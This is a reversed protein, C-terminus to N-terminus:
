LFNLKDSTYVTESSLPPATPLSMGESEFRPAPDTALFDSGCSYVPPDEHQQVASSLPPGSNSAVAPVGSHSSGSPKHAKSVSPVPAPAASYIVPGQQSPASYGGSAAATALAAANRRYIKRNQCRRRVCYCACCSVMLLVAVSIYILLHVPVQAELVTLKVFLVLNQKQDYFGYYGYDAMEVSSIVLADDRPQIRKSNLIEDQWEGDIMLRKVGTATTFNVFHPRFGSPYFFSYEEEEVAESRRNYILIVLNIRSLLKDKSRIHYYGQDPQALNLIQLKGDQLHMRGTNHTSPDSRNLLIEKVYPTKDSYFEVFAWDTHLTRRFSSDYWREVKEACESVKLRTIDVFESKASLISFMGDDKDTVDRLTITFRTIKFRPDKSTGNEVVITRDNGSRPMFYLKESLSRRVAPGNLHFDHGYCVEKTDYGFVGFVFCSLCWYTLLM